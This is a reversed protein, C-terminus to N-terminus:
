SRAALMGVVFARDGAASPKGGRATRSCWTPREAASEARASPAGGPGEARRPALHWTSTQLPPWSDSPRRLVPDTSLTTHGGRAWWHTTSLSTRLPRPKDYGM